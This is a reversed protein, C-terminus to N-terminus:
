NVGAVHLPRPCATHCVYQPECDILNQHLGVNVGAPTYWAGVSCAAIDALNARQMCLMRVAKLRMCSSRSGVSIPTSNNSEHCTTWRCGNCSLMVASAM